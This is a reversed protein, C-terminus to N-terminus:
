VVTNRFRFSKGLVLIQNHCFDFLRIEMRCLPFTIGKLNKQNWETVFGVTQDAAGLKIYPFWGVM